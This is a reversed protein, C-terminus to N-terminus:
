MGAATIAQRYIHDACDGAVYVGPIRTRVASGPQPVLYGNEDKEVFNGFPATNPVHGIAIFIGKCPIESTENTQTDTVKVARAQGSDDALMEEVMTNWVVEIKPHNITRDAMIQ